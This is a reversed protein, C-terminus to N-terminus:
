KDAIERRLDWRGDGGAPAFEAAFAKVDEGEPDPVDKVKFPNRPSLCSRQQVIEHSRRGGM